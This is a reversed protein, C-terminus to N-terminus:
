QHEYILEMKFPTLRVSNGMDEFSDYENIRSIGFTRSLQNCQRYMTGDEAFLFTIRKSGRLQGIFRIM